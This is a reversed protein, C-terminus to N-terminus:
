EKQIHHECMPNGSPSHSARMIPVLNLRTDIGESPARESTKIRCPM